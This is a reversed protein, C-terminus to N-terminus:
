NRFNDKIENIFKVNRHKRYNDMLKNIFRICVNISLDSEEIGTCVNVSLNSLHTTCTAWFNMLLDAEGIGTCANMSLDSEEIIGSSM